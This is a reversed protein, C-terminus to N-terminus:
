AFNRYYSLPCGRRCEDFQDRRMRSRYRITYYLEFGRNPALHANM